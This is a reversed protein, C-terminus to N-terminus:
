RSVSSLNYSFVSLRQQPATYSAQSYTTQQTFKLAQVGLVGTFLCTRSCTGTVGTNFPPSSHFGPAQSFWGARSFNLLLGKRLAALYFTISSSELCGRTEVQTCVRTERSKSIINRYGCFGQTGQLFASDCRVVASTHWSLALTGATFDRPAVYGPVALFM